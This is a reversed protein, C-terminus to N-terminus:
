PLRRMNMIPMATKAVADSSPPNAVPSAHSM